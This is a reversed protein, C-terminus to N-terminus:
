LDGQAGAVAFHDYLEEEADEAAAGGAEGALPEFCAHLLAERMSPRAGAEWALLGDVALAWLAGGATARAGALAAGAGAGFERRHAAWQAGACHALLAAGAPSGALAGSARVGEVGLLVAYRYLTDCLVAAASGEGEGGGDLALLKRIAAYPHAPSRWAALLARALAGPARVGALAEEYPGRGVALHLACLGLAFADAAYGVPAGDGLLFFEPPANELTTWHAARLRGLASPARAAEGGGTSATGYDALKFLASARAGGPLLLVSRRAGEVAYRLRRARAAGRALPLVFFNLLKIDLHVLRVRQRAVFVAYLMQWLAALAAASPLAGGGGGGGASRVWAEADGGTCLEMRTYQFQTGRTALRPPPARPHARACAELAARARALLPAGGGGGSGEGAAAAAAVVRRAAALSPLDPAFLPAAASASASASGPAGWAAGFDRAPGAAHLFVGYAEVYHPCLGERLVQTLLCSVQIEAEAVGLAGLRALKACDTVAIAEFRAHSAVWVRYVEKYAGSSLYSGAPFAELFPRWSTLLPARLPAPPAASPPASPPAPAPAPAPAAAAAAAAKGRARTRSAAAASTTTAAPLPPPPAPASGLAERPGTVGMGTAVRWGMVHRSANSWARSVQPTTLLLLRSSLFELVAPLLAALARESAPPQAPPPPPPPPLTATPLAAMAGQQQQAEEGEKEDEEEDEEELLAAQAAPAPYLSRRAFASPAMTVRRYASRM